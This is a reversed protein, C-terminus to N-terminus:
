SVSRTSMETKDHAAEIADVKAHRMAVNCCKTRAQQTTGEVRVKAVRGRKAV